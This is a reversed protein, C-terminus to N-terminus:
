LLAPVIGEEGPAAEGSKGARAAGGGRPPRVPAGGRRGIEKEAAGRVTGLGTTFDEHGGGEKPTKGTRDLSRSRKGAMEPSGAAAVATLRRRGAMRRRGAAAWQQWGDMQLPVAGILLAEYGKSQDVTSRHVPDV